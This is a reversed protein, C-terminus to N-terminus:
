SASHRGGHEAKAIEAKLVELVLPVNGFTALHEKAQAVLERMEDVDGGAIAKRMACGYVPVASM